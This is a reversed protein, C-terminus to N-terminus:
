ESVILNLNQYIVMFNLTCIRLWSSPGSGTEITHKEFQSFKCMQQCNQWKEMLIQLKLILILKSCHIENKQKKSNKIEIRKIETHRQLLRWDDNYLIYFFLLM